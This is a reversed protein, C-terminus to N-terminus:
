KVPPLPLPAANGVAQENQTPPGGTLAADGPTAHKAAVLASIQAELQEIRKHQSEIVRGQEKIRALMEARSPNNPTGEPKPGALLEEAEEATVRRTEIEPEAEIAALAKPDLDSIKFAQWAQEFRLGGRNFKVRKTRGVIHTHKPNTPPKTSM